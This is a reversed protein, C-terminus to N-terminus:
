FCFAAADVVAPRRNANGEARCDASSLEGFLGAENKLLMMEFGYVVVELVLIM